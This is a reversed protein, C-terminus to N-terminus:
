LEANSCSSMSRLVKGAIRRRTCRTRRWSGWNVSAVRLRRRVRELEERIREKREQSKKLQNELDDDRRRLAEEAMKGKVPVQIAICLAMEIPFQTPKTIKTLM